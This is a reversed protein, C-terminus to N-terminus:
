VCRMSLSPNWIARLLIMTSHEQALVKSDCHRGGGLHIRLQRCNTLVYGATWMRQCHARNQKRLVSLLCTNTQEGQHITTGRERNCTLYKKTLRGRGNIRRPSFSPVTSNLAQGLSACLMPESWSKPRGEEKPYASSCKIKKGGCCLIIYFHYWTVMMFEATFNVDTSNFGHLFIKRRCFCRISQCYARQVIRDCPVFDCMSTHLNCLPVELVIGSTGTWRSRGKNQFDWQPVQEGAHTIKYWTVQDHLSGIGFM